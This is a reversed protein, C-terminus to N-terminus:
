EGGVVGKLKMVARYVLMRAATASIGMVAGIEASPLEAGFRLAVAERERESLVMLHRHLESAEDLRVARDAPDSDPAAEEPRGGATAGAGAAARRRWWDAATHRAIGIVWAGEVGKTPDFSRQSAMARTFVESTVDEADADTPVRARAYRWVRAAHDRYLAGFDISM